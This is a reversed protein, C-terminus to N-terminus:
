INIALRGLEYIFKGGQEHMRRTLDPNIILDSRGQREFEAILSELEKASIVRTDLSVKEEEQKKVYGAKATIQENEPEHGIPAIIRPM